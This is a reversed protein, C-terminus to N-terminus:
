WHQVTDFIGAKKIDKTVSVSPPDNLKEPLFWTKDRLDGLPKGEGRFGDNVMKLHHFPFLDECEPCIFLSSFVIKKGM